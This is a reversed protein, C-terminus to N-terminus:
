FYLLLGFCVVWGVVTLLLFRDTLVLETPSGSREEVLVIQLYRLIGAVIFPVTFYIHSTGLRQIVSQDTSYILYSVLLAGLVVSVASDLFTRTYGDLSRRHDRALANVVDDRRKALALFLALLFTIIVIWPTPTIGVASSGAMVRLVFGMAVIMVDIIAIHKLGLCYILNTGLYVALYVAFLRPLFVLSLLFGITALVGSIELALAGTMVGSAIPRHRKRPHLKDADRDLVDNLLYIASALACFAAFGIAASQMNAHSLASPTLLLPAIVFLNKVWHHPRLIAIFPPLRM